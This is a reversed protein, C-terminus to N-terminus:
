IPKYILTKDRGSGKAEYLAKDAQDILENINFKNTSDTLSM